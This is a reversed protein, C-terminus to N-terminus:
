FPAGGTAFDETPAVINEKFVMYSTIASVLFVILALVIVEKMPSTEKKMQKDKRKVGNIIFIFLPAIIAVNLLGFLLPNSFM